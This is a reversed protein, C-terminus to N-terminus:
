PRQDATSNTVPENGEQKDEQKQVDAPAPTLPPKPFSPAPVQPQAPAPVPGSGRLGILKGVANFWFPAGQGAALGSLFIGFLKALWGWPDNMGPLNVIQKCTGTTGGFGPYTPRGPIFGVQTCDIAQTEWGIPLNFNQAQKYLQSFDEGPNAPATLQNNASSNQVQAVLMQRQTPETWLQTAIQVTDINLGLALVIGIILSLKQANRKYWGTVRDMSADFQQELNARAYAITYETTLLKDGLNPFIHDILKPSNANPVLDARIQETPPNSNPVLTNTSVLVDLAAQAFKAAPIYSPKKFKGTKEDQECLAQIAPHQYFKDVLAPDRLINLIGKELYTSRLHFINNIYEQVQSAAASLVLWAFVLGIAIELIADLSM